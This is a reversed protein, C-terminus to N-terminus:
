RKPLNFYNPFKTALGLDGRAKMKGRMFLLVPNAHGTVMKLFEVAGLTLTLRPEREPTASRECTGNAIVIEYTDVGGGPADGVAWHIVADVGRARDPRFVAPMNDFVDDLIAKRREGQLTRKLEDPSSEEVLRTIERQHAALRSTDNASM